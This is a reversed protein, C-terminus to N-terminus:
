IIARWCERQWSGAKRLSSSMEAGDRMERVYGRETLKGVAARVSSDSRGIAESLDRIRVAGKQLRIQFIHKLYDEDAHKSMEIQRKLQEKHDGM